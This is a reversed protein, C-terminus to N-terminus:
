FVLKARRSSGAVGLVDFEARQPTKRDGGRAGPRRHEGGGCGLRWRQDGLDFFTGNRDDQVYYTRDRGLYDSDAITSVRQPMPDAEQSRAGAALLPVPKERNVSAQPIGDGFQRDTKSTHYWWESVMLVGYEGVDEVESGEAIQSRPVWAEFVSAETPIRCLIAKGTGRIATAAQISVTKTIVQRGGKETSGEESQFLEDETFAKIVADLVKGM